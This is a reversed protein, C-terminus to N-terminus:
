QDPSLPCFHYEIPISMQHKVEGCHVCLSCKCQLCAWKEEKEEWICNQNSSLSDIKTMLLDLFGAFLTNQRSSMSNVLIAMQLCIEIDDEQLEHVEKGLSRFFSQSVIGRGGAGSGILFEREFYAKTQDGDFMQAEIRPLATADLRQTPNNGPFVFPDENSVLSDDEEDDDL